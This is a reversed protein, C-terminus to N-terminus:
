GEGATAVQTSRYETWTGGMDECGRREVTCGWAFGGGVLCVPRWAFWKYWRQAFMREGGTGRGFMGCEFQPVTPSLKCGSEFWWM